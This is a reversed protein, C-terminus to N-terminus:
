YCTRRKQLYFLIFSFFFRCLSFIFIRSRTHSIRMSNFGIRDSSSSKKLVTGTDYPITGLNTIRRTSTLYEWMLRYLIWAEWITKVAHNLVSKFRNKKTRLSPIGSCWIRSSTWLQGAVATGPGCGTCTCTHVLHVFVPLAKWSKRNM